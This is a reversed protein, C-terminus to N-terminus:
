APSGGRQRGSIPTELEEFALRSSHNKTRKLWQQEPSKEGSKANREKLAQELFANAPM